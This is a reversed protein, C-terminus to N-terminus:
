SSALEDLLNLIQRDHQHIQALIEKARQPEAELALRMLDCWARNNAARVEEIQDVLDM